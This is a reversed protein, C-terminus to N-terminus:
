PSRTGGDALSVGCRCSAIKLAAAAACREASKMRAKWDLYAASSRSFCGGGPASVLAAGEFCGAGHVACVEVHRLVARGIDISFRHSFGSPLRPNPLLVSTICWLM